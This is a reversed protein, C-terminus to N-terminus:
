KRLKKRFIILSSLGSGLLLLTSPEPVPEPPPPPPCPPPPCNPCSPTPPVPPTPPIPPIPPTLPTPPTPYVPYWWYIISNSGNNNSSSSSDSGSFLGSSGGSFGGGGSSSGGSSSGGGSSTSSGGLNPTSLHPIPLPPIADLPIYLEVFTPQKEDDWCIIAIVNGGKPEFKDGYLKANDVLTKTNQSSLLSEDEHIIYWIANQIDKKNGIKHNIIYNIYDFRINRIKEPPLQSSYLETDVVVNKDIQKNKDLCWGVYNKNTKIDYEKDDFDLFMIIFRSEEGFEIYTKIKGSPIKIVIQKKYEKEYILGYERESIEQSYTSPFIKEDTIDTIPASMVKSTFLVLLGCLFVRFKKM